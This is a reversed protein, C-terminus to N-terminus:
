GSTSAWTPSTGRRLPPVQCGQHSPQVLDNQRRPDQQRMRVPRPIEGEDAPLRRPEEAVEAEKEKPTAKFNAPQSASTRSGFGQWRRAASKAM